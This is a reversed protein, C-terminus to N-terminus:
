VLWKKQRWVVQLGFTMGNGEALLATGKKEDQKLFCEGLGLLFMTWSFREAFVHLHFLVEFIFYSCVQFLMFSIYCPVLRGGVLSSM